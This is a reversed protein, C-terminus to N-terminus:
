RLRVSFSVRRDFSVLTRRDNKTNQGNLAYQLPQQDSDPCVAALTTTVTARRRRNTESSGSLYSFFSDASEELEILIIARTNTAESGFLFDVGFDPSTLSKRRSFASFEVFTESLKEWLVKIDLVPYFLQQIHTFSCKIKLEYRNIVFRCLYYIYICTLAFYLFYFCLNALNTDATFTYVFSKCAHTRDSLHVFDCREKVCSRSIYRLRFSLYVVVVCPLRVADRAHQVCVRYSNNPVVRAGRRFRRTTIFLLWSPGSKTKTMLWIVIGAATPKERIESLVAGGTKGVNGEAPSISEDSPRKRNPVISKRPGKPKRVDLM